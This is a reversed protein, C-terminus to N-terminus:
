HHEALLAQAQNAVLLVGQARADKEVATLHTRAAAAGSRLEIEGLALQIQLQYIGYGFKRASTLVTELEKLADATKGSRARVRADAM